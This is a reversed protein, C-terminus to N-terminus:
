HRTTSDTARLTYQRRRQNIVMYRQVWNVYPNVTSLWPMGLIVDYGDLNVVTLPLQTQYTGIRLHASPVVGSIKEQVGNGYKISGTTPATQQGFETVLTSSIANIESGSDVLIRIRRQRWTGTFVLTSQISPSASSSAQAQGPSSSEDTEPTALSYVPISFVPGPSEPSSM